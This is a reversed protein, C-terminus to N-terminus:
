AQFNCSIGVGAFCFWNKGVGWEPSPHPLKGFDQHWFIRTIDLDAFLSIKIVGVNKLPTTLLNLLFFNSQQFIVHFKWDKFFGM